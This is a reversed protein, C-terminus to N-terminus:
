EHSEEKRASPLIQAAMMGALIRGIERRDAEPLQEWLHNL